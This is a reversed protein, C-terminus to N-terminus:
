GQLTTDAKRKGTVNLSSDANNPALYDPLSQKWPHSQFYTHFILTIFWPVGRFNLLNGYEDTIRIRIESGNLIVDDFFMEIASQDEFATTGFPPATVNVDGLYHGKNGTNWNEFSLNPCQIVLKCPGLFNAPNPFVCYYMSNKYTAVLETRQVKGLAQWCTTENTITFSTSNTLTFVGSSIDYLLSFGTPLLTMLATKFTAYTYNGEPVTYTTTSIGDSSIVLTNQFSEINFYSAPFVASAFSVSMYTNTEKRHFPIGFQVDSYHLDNFLSTAGTPTLLIRQSRRHAM